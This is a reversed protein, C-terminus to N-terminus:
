EYLDAHTLLLHTLQTTSYSQRSPVFGGAGAERRAYSVARGYCDLPQRRNLAALLDHALKSEALEAHSMVILKHTQLNRGCLKVARKTSFHNVFQRASETREAEAVHREVQMAIARARHIFNQSATILSLHHTIPFLTERM